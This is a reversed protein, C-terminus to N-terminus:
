LLTQLYELKAKIQSDKVVPLAKEIQTRLTALRSTATKGTLKEQKQLRLKIAELAQSIKQKESESLSSKLALVSVTNTEYYSWLATRTKNWFYGAEWNNADNIIWLKIQLDVLSDKVSEYKGDLIGRYEWLQTLLKQLELIKENESEPTIRLDGYALIIKYAESAYKHNYQSFLDTDETILIDSSYGYKERLVAVTKPGFYWAAEEEASQIIGNKLQYDILENKISEYKGDIVGNYLDIKKFIEQLRKVSEIESDPAVRLNWIYWLQSETHKLTISSSPVVIKWKITKKGWRIARDLGEDGYGMWIDIRDYSYWREWAKVIAGGRDEISWIGYWEFYIKTGFPYNAPGALLGPFVGKWSATTVWEGNLRVDWEYSGTIYRSQDPLPSYYATAVFYTEENAHALITNWFFYTTAVIAWLILQKTPCM